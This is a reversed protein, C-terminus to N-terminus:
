QLAGEIQAVWDSLRTEIIRTDVRVRIEPSSVAAIRVVTAFNELRKVLVPTFDPPGSVEITLPTGDKVLDEAAAVVDELAQERLRGVVFPAITQALAGALEQRLSAMGEDIKAALRSAEVELLQRRSTEFEEKLRTEQEHLANKLESAASRVGREYGGADAAAIRSASHTAGFPALVNGGANESESNNLDILHHVLPSTLMM